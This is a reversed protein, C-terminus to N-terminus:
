KAKKNIIRKKDYDDDNYGNILCAYTKARFARFGEMIKRGLEDKFLAIVKKNMGVALPRKDNEDYDSTDLWREVNNAIDKYFDETKIYIVFSDTDKYCLKARNGYKPNM